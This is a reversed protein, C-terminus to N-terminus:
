MSAESPATKQKEGGGGGTQLKEWNKRLKRQNDTKEKKARLNGRKM